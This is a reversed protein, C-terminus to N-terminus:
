SYIEVFRTIAWGDYGDPWCGRPDKMEGDWYLMWHGLKYEGNVKKTCISVLCRQPLVPRKKSLRRARSDTKVGLAYLADVVDKTRTGSKKRKGVVDIARDLSVGAAMAVCAQGCANSGEPAIILSPTM